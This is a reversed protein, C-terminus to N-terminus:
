KRRELIKGKSSLYNYQEMFTINDSAKNNAYECWYKIEKEWYYYKSDLDDTSRNIYLDYLVYVALADMARRAASSIKVYGDIGLGQHGINTYSYKSKTMYNKLLLQLGSSNIDFSGHELYKEILEINEERQVRWPMILGLHERKDILHITSNAFVNCQEVMMHAIPAESDVEKQNNIREKMHHYARVRPNDIAQKDFIKSILILDDHLLGTNTIIEEAEQYTLKHKNNIISPIIELTDLDLSYDPTVGVKITLANTNKNPLISLINDSLYRDFIPISNNSLYITHNRKLAEHMTNSEYPITATPNALHIFLTYTGNNNRKISMADDLCMDGENDITFIEEQTLDIKGNPLYVYEEYKPIIFSVNYDKAVEEKTTYLENEIKDILEWVFNKPSTKLIRLYDEESDNFLKNYLKGRLFVNIVRNFYKINIENDEDIKLYQEIINAFVSTIISKNILLEKMNLEIYKELLEIDRKEFILFLMFYYKDGKARKKNNIVSQNQLNILESLYDEIQLLKELDFSLTINSLFVEIKNYVRELDKKNKNKKIYNSLLSNLDELLTKNNITTINRFLYLYSNLIGSLVEEPYMLLENYLTDYDCDNNLIEKKIRRSINKNSSM